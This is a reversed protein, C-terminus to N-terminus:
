DKRSMGDALLDLMMNVDIEKTMEKGEV